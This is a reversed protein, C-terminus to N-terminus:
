NGGAGTLFLAVALLVVYVWLLAAKGEFFSGLWRLFHSVAGLIFIVSSSLFEESQEGIAQSGRQIAHLTQPGWRDLRRYALGTLSATVMFILSSSLSPGAHLALGGIAIVLMPTILGLAYANQVFSEGSVWEVRKDSLGQAIGLAIFVSGLTIIGHTALEKVGIEAWGAPNIFATHGATWPAGLAMLIAIILLYRHWQEHFDWQSFFAGMSIMLTALGVIVISGQELGAVAAVAMGAMTLVFFPRGAIPDKSVSWRFGGVFVSIAALGILWWELNVPIIEAPFRALFALGMAPPLLRIAVGLGRRIGPLPPMAVHLPWLGIRLVVAFIWSAPQVWDVYFGSGVPISGALVLLVSGLHSLYRRIGGRVTEVQEASRLLIVFVFGDALTWTMIVTAPNAAMISFAALGAYALVYVRTEANSSEPRAPSGLFLSLPLAVAALALAWNSSELRLQLVAQFLETPRWNSIAFATPLQFFMIALAVISVFSLAISIAWHSRAQRSRLLWLVLASLLPLIAIFGTL